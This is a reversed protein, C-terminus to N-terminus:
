QSEKRDSIGHGSGNGRRTQGLGLGLLKKNTSGTKKPYGPPNSKEVKGLKRTSLLLKKSDKHKM